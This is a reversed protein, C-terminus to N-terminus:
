YSMYDNIDLGGYDDKHKLVYSYKQWWHLYQFNKGAHQSFTKASM